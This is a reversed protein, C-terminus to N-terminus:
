AEPAIGIGTDKVRLELDGNHRHVSVDIRGDPRNYEIANHLLNTLVERLKDPDAQLCAPGNHEVRLDVGRAEALARGMASCQDALHAVDVQRPRLQDAGADLRALALLREVLQTMQLGTERCELLVEHYEEAQRPKRLTVDLTAMMAALPTRLEHS